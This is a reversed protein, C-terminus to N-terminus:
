CKRYRSNNENWFIRRRSKKKFTQRKISDEKLQALEEPTRERNINAIVQKAKNEIVNKGWDIDKQSLASNVPTTQPQSNETAETKNATLNQKYKRLEEVTM